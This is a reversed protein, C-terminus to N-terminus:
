DINAVKRYQAIGYYLGGGSGDNDHVLTYGLQSMLLDIQGYLENNYWNALDNVTDQDPCGDDMFDPAIVVDDPSVEDLGIDQTAPDIVDISGYQHYKNLNSMIVEIKSINSM